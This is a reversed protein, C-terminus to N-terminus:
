FQAVQRLGVAIRAADLFYHHEGRPLPITIDFGAIRAPPAELYLFAGENVLAVLEAGPGFSKAAEHVVAFRGTKRVSELITDRDLPSITRLDIVEASIGEDQLKDAAKLTEHLYAGWSVVTLDTGARVVKAKGLSITYGEEPVEQRFARYLRSPELFLVPDDDQIASLLLGKADYPTSPVVVKLGPIHGFFTELSESHHELARIGGGHPMRIVLPLHRQGRTRNRMRAVHSIIQNFAPYVFGSFQIEAVPKLGNLAMGVATGVIASEALPTDFCRDPGYKEQLGVTARFVGGEVGVDEGFVVVREDQSMALDLTHNVATILNMLAM